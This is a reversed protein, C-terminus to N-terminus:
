KFTVTIEDDGTASGVATFPLEIMIEENGSLQPSKYEIKPCSIEMIKGAVSGAPIILADQEQYESRYFYNTTNKYFYLSITGGVDRFGPAGYITPYWRGNKEDVYYKINNTITVQSSLIVANTADITVMGLKGHVPAGDETATSPYWPSVVAALSAAAVNPTCNVRGTAYNVSTILFGAGGNTQSPLTFRGGATFRRPDNVMIYAQSGGVALALTDTGAYYWKMFQGSWNITAIENGAINFQGQNVTCGAMYFVTHGVKRLM